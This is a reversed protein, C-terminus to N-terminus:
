AAVAEIVSIYEKTAICRARRLGSRQLLDDFEELSRERGGGMLLVELDLQKVISFENGPPVIGEVIILRGGPTMARGCNELIRVCDDHPWNHLIHSLLYAESGPPVQHLFDCGIVEIRSEMGHKAVMAEALPLTSPLEAVVGSLQDYRQLIAMLLGGMGGGVDTVTALDGFDYVDLIARHTSTAKIHNAEQVIGAERPHKGFWVFASEGHVKEFAPLGTRLTYLLHDWVADHWPAHFMLIVARLRGEQLLDSMPTNAFAMAETEKFIGVSALSRLMRYLPDPRADVQRALEDVHCPGNALLDAIGLSAAAYIPKSIWKALVMKMMQAEPPMTEPNM